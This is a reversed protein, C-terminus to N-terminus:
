RKITFDLSRLIAGGPVVSQQKRGSYSAGVKFNKFSVEPYCEEPMGAVTVKMKYFVGNRKSYLTPYDGARGKQYDKESIITKLIYCKQRIYKAKTFKYEIKWAGLKTPHIELWDPISFDDSLLHLSDTDCYAWRIKSIGAEYEDKVRQAARLTIDRAYSTIFSAMPVYLADCSTPPLDKYKVVGDTDKYPAKSKRRNSQGFKGYLANLFLKAVLRLGWNEEETARVKAETWKDVYEDFLGRTGKYKWGSIWEPNYVYYNELFLDLDVNNLILVIEECDSSRLYESKREVQGDRVQITPIKGPKLEFACRVMQTYLPYMEDYKYRGKYHIPTGHPLVRSRMVYPYISNNDLVVGNGLLKEAIEPEVQTVGGRYGQHIDDYNVPPFRREFERKGLMAKYEALACSGITMKTLGQSRFFHLATAVIKVDNKLYEKEEDTMPSNYPLNDHATYDIKGKRTEMRFADAIDAVSMPLLKMSDYFTAKKINKGRRWFIVEVAYYIGSDSILTKFTKTARDRSEVVHTFGNDLLWSILFQADFKINHFWIEPNEPRTECIHMFDYIDTGIYMNEHDDMQCLAWGWVHCDDPRTTTEFDAVWQM